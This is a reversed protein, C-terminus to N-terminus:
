TCVVCSYLDFILIGALLWLSCYRLRVYSALLQTFLYIKHVHLASCVHNFKFCLNYM